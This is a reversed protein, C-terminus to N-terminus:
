VTEYRIIEERLITEKNLPFRNRLWGGGRHVVQNVNPGFRRFAYWAAHSNFKKSNERVVAWPIHDDHRFNWLDFDYIWGQNSKGRPGFSCANSVLVPYGVGDWDGIELVDGECTGLFRASPTIGLQGFLGDLGRLGMQVYPERPPVFAPIPVAVLSAMSAAIGKLFNRRNTKM